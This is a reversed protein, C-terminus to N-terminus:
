PCPTQSDEWGPNREDIWAKLDPDSASLHNNELKLGNSILISSLNMLEVPIEECLHNNDLWLYQLKSLNGLEAPIEDSLDNGFLFLRQLETFNGLEAPIEGDLNNSHLSLKSVHGGSCAVGYWSCPTDTANWNTNSYWNAGNTNNYLAVLADCESTPIQAVGECNIGPAEVITVVATDPDGITAGGTAKKLSLNFTENDEPNDDNIIDVTFTQDDTEGDDWNLTGETEIYDKGAKATDNATAFDVSVAGDSGDVRTVTIKVSGGNENVKYEAKSFQLTGYGTQMEDDIITLVAQDGISAGGTAKKLRLNVTESGESESDDVITVKFTKDSSDGNKWKLKKATKKYDKGKEATGNKTVVKVTVKGDSGGVRKVNITVSKDAENVSYKAKSFQLTGAGVPPTEDDAITVKATGGIGAGGTPNKLKLDFSESSESEDDDIIDVTFTKDSTEGDSWNLTGSTETYDKGATASDESTTYDVSVAGEGDGIRKVTITVQEENENVNYTAYSFQLTTGKPCVTQTEDWGPNYEDLWAILEEDSATLHNNDLSLRLRLIKKLNMLEVPIDGCLDNKHLRLYELNSLNGLEAPITGDLQNSYLYLSELKGLQGLEPPITGNLQNTHLELHKLKTLDGLEAPLFGNLQNDALDLYTVYEDDCRVGYWKCPKDTVNWNKRNTWSKGNTSHYLALLAECEAGPIQTVNNCDTQAPLNPSLLALGFLWLLYTKKLM